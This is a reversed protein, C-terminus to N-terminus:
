ESRGVARAQYIEGGDAVFAQMADISAKQAGLGNFLAAALTGFVLGQTANLVYGALAPMQQPWFPVDVNRAKSSLFVNLTTARNKDLEASANTFLEGIKITGDNILKQNIRVHAHAADNSVIDGPIPKPIWSTLFSQRRILLLTSYTLLPKM